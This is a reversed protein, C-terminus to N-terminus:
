NHEPAFSKKRGMRYLFFAAVIGFLAWTGPEPIVQVSGEVYLDNATPTSLDRIRVTGSSGSVAGSTSTAGYVWLRFEVVEATTFDSFNWSAREISTTNPLTFPSQLVFGGAGIKYGWRASNPATSSAGLLYSMATYTAEFGSQAQMSFSVYDDLENFTNTTNWGASNFMSGGSEAALGSARTLSNLGIATSLNGSITTASFSTTANSDVIGNVNFGLITQARANGVSLIQMFLFVAFCSASGLTACAQGMHVRRALITQRLKRLIGFFQTRSRERANLQLNEMEGAHSNKIETLMNM